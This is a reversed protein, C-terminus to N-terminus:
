RDVTKESPTADERPGASPAENKPEPPNVLYKGRVHCNRGENHGNSRPEPRPEDGMRVPRCGDGITTAAFGVLLGALTKGSALMKRINRLITQNKKSLRM